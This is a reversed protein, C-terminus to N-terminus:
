KKELHERAAKALNLWIEQKWPEHGVVYTDYGGSATYLAKALQLNRQNEAKQKEERQWAKVGKYFRVLNQSERINDEAEKIWRDLCKLGDAWVERYESGVHTGYNKIEFTEATGDANNVTHKAM